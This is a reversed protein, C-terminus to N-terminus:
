SPNKRDTRGCISQRAKSKRRERRPKYNMNSYRQRAAKRSKSPISAELNEELEGYQTLIGNDEAVFEKGDLMSSEYELVDKSFLFSGIGSTETRTTESCHLTESVMRNRMEM